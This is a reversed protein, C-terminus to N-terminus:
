SGAVVAGNLWADQIELPVRRKIYGGADSPMQPNDSIAEFVEVEDTAAWAETSKKSTQRMAIWVRAGKAKLAQFVDDEPDEAVGSDFYRFVTLGGQYNSPGLANSNGEQCLAKEAIKDSDTAGLSFDSSLVNCSADLGATLETVTPALPNVPKTSLISLKITGDALSKPM